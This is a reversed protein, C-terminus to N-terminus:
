SSSDPTGVFTNAMSPDSPDTGSTVSAPAPVGLFRRAEQVCYFTRLFKDMSRQQIQSGSEWRSLTFVSIGLSRALEQQSLGLAVRKGRIEEPSLLGVAARLAADLRENAADDLILAGCNGCQQVHLDAVSVPYKRGDHELDATYSPLTTPSVARERCRICKRLSPKSM